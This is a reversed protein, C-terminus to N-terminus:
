VKGVAAGIIVGVALALANTQTLFTKFESLMAAEANSDCPRSGAADAAAGPNLERPLPRALGAGRSVLVGFQAAEPGLPERRPFVGTAGARGQGQARWLM